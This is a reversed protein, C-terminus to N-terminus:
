GQKDMLAKLDTGYYDSLLDLLADARLAEDDVKVPQGDLELRGYRIRVGEVPKRTSGTRRKIERKDQLLKAQESPTRVGTSGFVQTVERGSLHALKRKTTEGSDPLVLDVDGVELMERQQNIDLAALYRLLQRNGAFRVVAQADLHGSAILPLYDTLSGKLASLDEGRRELETWIAAMEVLHRASLEMQKALREKLADTTITALEVNNADYGTIIENM